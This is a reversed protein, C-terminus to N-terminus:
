SEPRILGWFVTSLQSPHKTCSCPSWPRAQLESPTLSHSEGSAVGNLGLHPLGAAGESLWMNQVSSMGRTFNLAPTKPACLHAELPLHLPSVPHSSLRETWSGRSNFDQTFDRLLSVLWEWLPLQQNPGECTLKCICTICAYWIVTNISKLNWIHDTLPRHLVLPSLM